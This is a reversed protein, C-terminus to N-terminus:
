GNSGWIFGDSVGPVPEGCEVIDKILKSRESLSLLENQLLDSTSLHTFGYKKAIQECQSGKGSGPGGIHPFLYSSNSFFLSRGIRLSYGGLYHSSISSVSQKSIKIKKKKTSFNDVSSCTM